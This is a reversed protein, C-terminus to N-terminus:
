PVVPETPDETVIQTPQETVTETVAETAEETVTETVTETPEETVGETPDETPEDILPEPSSANVKAATLVGDARTGQIAVHDGVQVEALTAALDDRTIKADSAVNILVATGRLAKDGGKVGVTITELGVAVVTGTATFRAAKRAKADVSKGKTGSKGKTASHDRAAKKEAARTKAEASTGRAKEGHKAKAVKAIDPGRGAKPGKALAPLALASLVLAILTAAVAASRAIRRTTVPTELHRRAAACVPNIPIQVTNPPRASDSFHGSVNGDTRIALM